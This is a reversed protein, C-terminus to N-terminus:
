WAVCQRLDLAYFDRTLGRYGALFAGPAYREADSVLVALETTPTTTM